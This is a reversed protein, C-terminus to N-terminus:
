CNWDINSKRWIEVTNLLSEAREIAKQRAQERDRHYTQRLPDTDFNYAKDFHWKFWNKYYVEFQKQHANYIVKATKFLTKTKTM